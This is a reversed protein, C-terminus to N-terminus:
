TPRYFLKMFSAFPKLFILIVLGIIINYFLAIFVIQQEISTIMNTIADIMYTEFLVPFALVLLLGVSNIGIHSYAVLKALHNQGISFFLVTICTGLNAGVILYLIHHLLIPGEEIFGILLATFTTSSQLIATIAFGSFLLQFPSTDPSELWSDIQSMSLAHTLNGFGNLTAFIVGIGLLVSGISFWSYHKFPLLVFIFGVILCGIMIVDNNWVFLQTTLTTSINAGILYCLIFPISRKMSGIFTMLMAISVSSSQFLLTMVFGFLFGNRKSLKSELQGIYQETLTQFGIKMLTLGFILLGILVFILLLLSYM